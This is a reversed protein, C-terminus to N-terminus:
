RDGGLKRCPPCSPITLCGSGAPAHRNPPLPHTKLGAPAQARTERAPTGPGRRSRLRPGSLDEVTELRSANPRPIDDSLVNGGWAASRTYTLSGSGMHSHRRAASDASSVCEARTRRVVAREPSRGAAGAGLLYWFATFPPLASASATM